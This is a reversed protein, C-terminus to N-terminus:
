GAEMDLYEKILKCLDTYGKEYSTNKWGYWWESRRFSGMLPNVLSIVNENLKDQGTFHKGIGFYVSSNTKEILISFPDSGNEILVGTKTLEGEKREQVNLLPFDERLASTWKKFIDEKQQSLITNIRSQLENVQKLESELKEVNEVSCGEKLDFQQYIFENIENNMKEDRPRKCFRGNLHDIYQSNFCYFDNDKHKINPLVSSELWEILTPHYPAVKTKEKFSEAYTSLAANLDKEANMSVLYLLHINEDIYGKGKCKDIYRKLQEQQDVADNIKNEIILCNKGDQILIDIRDEEPEISTKEHNFVVDYDLFTNIFSELFIYKGQEKFNLIESLIASHGNENIGLVDILNATRREPKHHSKIEDISKIISLFCQYKEFKRQFIFATIANKKQILDLFRQCDSNM